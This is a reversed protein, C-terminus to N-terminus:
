HPSSFRVTQCGIVAFDRTRAPVSIMPFYHHNGPKASAAPKPISTHAPLFNFSNKHNPSISAGLFKSCVCFLFATHTKEVFWEIFVGLWAWVRLLKAGMKLLRLLATCAIFVAPIHIGELHGDGGPFTDQIIGGKCLTILNETQPDPVISRNRKKTLM